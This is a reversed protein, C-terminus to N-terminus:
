VVIQNPKFANPPICRIYKLKLTTQFQTIYVSDPVFDILFRYSIKSFTTAIVPCLLLGFLYPDLYNIFANYHTFPQKPDDM